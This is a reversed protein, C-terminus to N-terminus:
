TSRRQFRARESKSICIIPHTCAALDLSATVKSLIVDNPNLIDIMSYREDLESRAEDRPARAAAVGLGCAESM